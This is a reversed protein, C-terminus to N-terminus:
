ASVPGICINDSDCHHNSVNFVLMMSGTICHAVRGLWESDRLINRNVRVMNDAKLREQLSFPQHLQSVRDFLNKLIRGTVINLNQRAEEDGNQNELRPCYRKTHGEEGCGYCTVTTPTWCDIAQHGVKKYNGCKVPCLGHHHFKYNDYLPLTRAYGTKNGTETVYARGVEQRKGQQQRHNGEQEDEWKRKRDADRTAIARVKQDILSEIKEEEDPVMKSCILSLEQFRQTYSVVDNDEVTLNWLENEMKKIENWTLAGDQLTCTAYKVQCRPTCNSIHFVSEMKEFWRALGVAGETGNKGHNGRGNNNDGNRNRNGKGNGNGNGKDNDDGSEVINGLNRNAEYTALAEAM